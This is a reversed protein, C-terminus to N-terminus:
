KSEKMKLENFAQYSKRVVSLENERNKIEKYLSFTAIIIMISIFFLIICIWLWVLKRSTIKVTEINYSFFYDEDGNSYYAILVSVYEDASLNDNQM